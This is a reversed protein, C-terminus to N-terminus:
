LHFSLTFHVHTFVGSSGIDTLNIWNCLSQLVDPNNGTNYDIPIDATGSLAKERSCCEQFPLLAKVADETQLWFM